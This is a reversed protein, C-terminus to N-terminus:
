PNAPEALTVIIDDVYVVDNNGDRSYVAIQVEIHTDSTPGTRYYSTTTPTLEVDNLLVREYKHTAQDVVFKLVNYENGVLGPHGMGGIDDWDGGDNYVEIDKGAYEYRAQARYMDSGDAMSLSGSVYDVGSGLAFAFELGVRGMPAVGRIQGILSFRTGNSGGTLKVSYGGSLSSTPDLACAALAGSKAWTWLSYGHEFNEFFAVQGRRDFAVASGLRVALEANGVSLMRGWADTSDIVFASLRGAEDVTVTTLVGEYEGQLVAYMEGLPGLLVPIFTTDHKGMLVYARTWDPMETM